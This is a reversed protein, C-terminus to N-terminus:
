QLHPKSLESIIHTDNDKLWTETIFTIDINNENFFQILTLSKNCVSYANLLVCQILGNPIKERSTEANKYLM